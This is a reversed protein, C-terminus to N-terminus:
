YRIKLTVEVDVVQEGAAMVPQSKSWSSYSSDDRNGGVTPNTIHASNVQIDLVEQISFGLKDLTAKAQAQGDDIAKELAKKRAAILDTEPAIYQIGNIQDIDAAIADDLVGMDDAKVQFEITQYGEYSDKQPKGDRDYKPSLNVNSAKVNEAQESKLLKVVEATRKNVKGYTTKAAAGRDSIGLSIQALTTPAQDRGHGTVALMRPSSSDQAAAPRGGMIALLLTTTVVWPLLRQMLKAFRQM